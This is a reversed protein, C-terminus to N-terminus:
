AVQCRCDDRVAIAAAVGALMLFLELVQDADDALLVVLVTIRDRVEDLRQVDIEVELFRLLTQNFGPLQQPTIEEEDRGRVGEHVTGSM